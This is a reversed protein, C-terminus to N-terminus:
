EAEEEQENCSPRHIKITLVDDEDVIDIGKSSLYARGINSLDDNNLISEFLFRKAGEIFKGM